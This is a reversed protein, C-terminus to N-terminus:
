KQNRLMTRGFALWNERNSPTLQSYIAAAEAAPPGKTVKPSPDGKGTELWESSVGLATALKRITVALGSKINDLEFNAVTPQSVGAASALKAQSWHKAERLIQVRGAMTKPDPVRRSQRGDRRSKEMGALNRSSKIVAGISKNIRDGIM